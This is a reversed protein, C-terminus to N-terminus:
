NRVHHIKACAWRQSGGEGDVAMDSEAAQLDEEAMAVLAQRSALSRPQRAAPAAAAGWGAAGDDGAELKIPTGIM